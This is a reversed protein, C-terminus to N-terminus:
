LQFATLHGTAGKFNAISPLVARSLLEEWTKTGREARMEDVNWATHIVMRPGADSDSTAVHPHPILVLNIFGEELKILGEGGVRSICWDGDMVVGYIEETM